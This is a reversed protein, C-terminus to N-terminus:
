RRGMLNRVGEEPSEERMLREGVLVANFFAVHTIANGEAGPGEFVWLREGGALRLAAFVAFLGLAVAVGLGWTPLPVAFGAYVEFPISPTWGNPNAVTLEYSGVQAARQGPSLPELTVVAQVNGDGAIRLGPATEGRDLGLPLM